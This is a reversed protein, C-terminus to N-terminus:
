FSEFEDDKKNDFGLDFKFGDISNKENKPTIIIKKSVIDKKKETKDKDKEIEKKNSDLNSEIIIEDNISTSKEKIFIKDSSTKFFSIIDKLQAAQASLEESSSALQESSSVNQKTIM